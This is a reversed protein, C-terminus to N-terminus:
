LHQLVSCCYDLYDAEVTNAELQGKLAGDAASFSPSRQPPTNGSHHFMNELGGARGVCWCKCGALRSKVQPDGCFHGATDAVILCIHVAATCLM